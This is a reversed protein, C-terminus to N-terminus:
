YEFAYENGETEIDFGIEDKESQSMAILQEVNKNKVNFLLKRRSVGEMKPTLVIRAMAELSPRGYETGGTFFFCSSDIANMLTLITYEASGHHSVKVLDFFTRKEYYNIISNAVIDPNADGLLLLKKDGLECVFALSANNEPTITRRRKKNALADLQLKSLSCSANIKYENDEYEMSVGLRLLMEYVSEEEEYSMGDPHLAYLKNFFLTRYKKDLTELEKRTPSLFVIKGFCTGDKSLEIPTTDVTTYDRKWGKKWGDNDLIMKSLTISNSVNIKYEVMDVIPPLDKCLNELRHKINKSLTNEEDYPRRQYCNYIIKGLSLNPMSALINILGNIHDNDIHTVVLVDIKKYFRQEIYDKVESTLSGCDVLIHFEMEGDQLLITICDGIGVNFTKFTCRM